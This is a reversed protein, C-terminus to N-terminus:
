ELASMPIQWCRIRERKWTYCVAVGSDTRVIAPYSYESELNPDDELHAITKWTKGNDSSVALDLPTRAGWDEGVPNYVLLVREDELRLADIGSNNNPLDTACMPTWTRGGDESDTRWVIGAGTRLLAHVKGPTSEWFTPQIAGPGAFRPDKPNTIEFDASRTWTKGQDESRDAFATWIEREGEKVELSAPALWAGDALTIAKNKVPGWGGIDGPVLEGRPLWTLGDDKSQMWYTAWHVEDVGVKFFLSIVDDADRFLVPNWHAMKKVKATREPKSWNKGDFRSIWVSVDPDKEKTGGFWACLLAGGKTQVVTSAHCEAFPRDDGFVFDAGGGAGAVMKHFAEYSLAESQQGRALPAVTICVLVTFCVMIGPVFTSSIM